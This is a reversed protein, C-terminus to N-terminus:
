GRIAPLSRSRLRDILWAVFAGAFLIDGWDAHKQLQPISLVTWPLLAVSGLLLLEAPQRQGRRVGM